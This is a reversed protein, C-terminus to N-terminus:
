GNGRATLLREFAESPACGLERHLAERYRRSEAHAGLEDGSAMLARVVIERASEDCADYEILRRGFRIANEFNGMDLLRRAVRLGTEYALENLRLIAPALWEWKQLRNSPTWLVDIDKQLRLLEAECLGRQTQTAKLRAEIECVDAQFAPGLQYNGNSVTVARTEGLKSRVRNTIVRLTQHGDSADSDPCLLEILEDRSRGAPKLALAILLEMERDSLRIPVDDKTITAALVALKFNNSTKEDRERFASFAKWPGVDAENTQLAKVRSSVNPTSIGAAISLADSFMDDRPSTDSLGVAVRSLVQLFPEGYYDSASVARWAFKARQTQPGTTTAILFAYVRFRPNEVSEVMQEVNGAAANRFLATAKQMYAPAVANLREIYYSFLADEGALWAGFTASMHAYCIVMDVRSELAIAIVHDLTRRELNRDGEVRARRAVFEELGLAYSSKAARLQPEIELWIPDSEDFRNKRAYVACRLYNALIQEGTGPQAYGSMKFNDLLRLAEAHRGVNALVNAYSALVASRTLPSTTSDLQLWIQEAEALWQEQRLSPGRCPTAAAWVTPYRVLVEPPISQVVHAYEVSPTQLYLVTEGELSEAALQPEGLQVYLTAARILGGRERWRNAIGRMVLTVQNGFRIKLASRVLPHIDYGVDTTQVFDLASLMLLLAAAPPPQEFLLELDAFTANPIGALALMVRMQDPDLKQLVHEILYEYVDAYEVHELRKLLAGLSGQATFRSLLLAAIPWGRTINEVADLTADDAGMGVFLEELECRDFALEDSHVSVIEHPKAYRTLRFPLATRSCLGITRASGLEAFLLGLLSLVDESRLHEANEFIFLSPDTVTNWTTLLYDSWACTDRGLGIKQQALVHLATADNGALARVIRGAFDISDQVETCDCTNVRERGDAYQALATSKGFGAPAIFCM